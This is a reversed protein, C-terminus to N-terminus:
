EKEKLEKAYIGAGIASVYQPDDAVIASKGTIEELAHILERDGAADGIVFMMGCSNDPEVDALIRRFVTMYTKFFIDKVNRKSVKNRFIDSGQLLYRTRCVNYSGCARRDKDLIDLFRWASCGANEALEKIFDTEDIMYNSYDYICKISMDSDIFMIKITEDGADVVTEFGCNKYEMYKLQCSVESMKTAHIDNKKGFDGTIVVSEISETDVGAHDAVQQVSSVRQIGGSKMILRDKLIGDHDLFVAKTTNKGFDIGLYM